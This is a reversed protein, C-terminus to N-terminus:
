CKPNIQFLHEHGFPYSHSSNDIKDTTIGYGCGGYCQFLRNKENGFATFYGAGAEGFFMNLKEVSSDSITSHRNHYMGDIMVGTHNSIAYAAQLNYLGCGSLGISASTNFEGKEKLLPSNIVNPKYLTVCGTFIFLVTFLPIQLAIKM